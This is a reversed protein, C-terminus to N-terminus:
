CGCVDGHYCEAGWTGSAANVFARVRYTRTKCMSETEPLVFRIHSLRMDTCGRSSPATVTMAKFGRTVEGCSTLETVLIGVAVSRHPCLNKLTMSVTLMRGMDPVCVGGLDACISDVCAPATVEVAEPCDECVDKTVTIMPNPFAPSEQAEDVLCISKNVPMKGTKKCRDKLTFRLTATQQESVALEDIYWQLSGDPMEQVTGFNPTDIAVIEFAPNPTEYITIDKAGPLLISQAINKFAEIIEAETPAILVYQSDPDSAWEKLLEENIGDSGTYGICYIEVGDQKMMNAIPTPNVGITPEGDTFLIMMKRGAQSAHLMAQAQAFADGTNTNGEAVLGDVAAELVDVQQTLPADIVASNAFSIVGIRNQGVLMNGGQALLEIFEKAAKKLSQLASGKMSGSRDLVMAIDVPRIESEPAATVSLTVHFTGGSSIETRDATKNVSLIPM